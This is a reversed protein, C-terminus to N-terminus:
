SVIKLFINMLVGKFLAVLGGPSRWGQVRCPQLYEDASSRAFPPQCYYLMVRNELIQLPHCLIGSIIGM